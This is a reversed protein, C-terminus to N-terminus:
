QNYSGYFKWQSGQYISAMSYPKVPLDSFKIESWKSNKENKFVIFVYSESNNGVDPLTALLSIFKKKLISTINKYNKWTVCRKDYLKIVANKQLASYESITLITAKLYNKEAM